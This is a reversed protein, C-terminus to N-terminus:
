TGVPAEIVLYYVLLLSCAAVFLEIAFQTRRTRVLNVAAWVAGVLSAAPWVLYVFIVTLTLPADVFKSFFKAASIAVLWGLVAILVFATSGSFTIAQRARSASTLESMTADM